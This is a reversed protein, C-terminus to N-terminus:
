IVPSRSFTMLVSHGPLYLWFPQSLVVMSTNTSKWAALSAAVICVGSRCKWLTSLCRKFSGNVPSRSFTMLVPPGPLYLWFPQALVVMSTNTSKWTALSAAVICVSSCCQWLTFSCCKVREHVPSRSFTMLVLPGPLYLWFHQALVQVTTNTPKWTALSAVM